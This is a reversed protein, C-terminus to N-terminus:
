RWSAPAAPPPVPFIPRPDQAPTWETPGSGVRESAAAEGIIALGILLVAGTFASARAIRNWRTGDSDRAVYDRGSVAHADLDRRLDTQISRSKVAGGVALAASGAVLAILVNRAVPHGGSSSACGAVLLLALAGCLGRKM